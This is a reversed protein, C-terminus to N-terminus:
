SLARVPLTREKRDEKHARAQEIRRRADEISRVAQAEAGRLPRSAAVLAPLSLRFRLLPSRLM